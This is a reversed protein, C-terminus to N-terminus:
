GDGVAYCLSTLLVAVMTTPDIDVPSRTRFRLSIQVGASGEIFM